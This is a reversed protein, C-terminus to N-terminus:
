KYYVTTYVTSYSVGNFIFTNLNVQNSGFRYTVILNDSATSYYGNVPIYCYGNRYVQSLFVHTSTEINSGGTEYHCLVWFESWSSPLQVPTTGSVTALATWGTATSIANKVAAVSPAKTTESGAMSNVVKNSLENNIGSLEDNIDSLEDNVYDCSYADTTSESNVNVVKGALARTNSTKKIRM